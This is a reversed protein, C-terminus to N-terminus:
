AAKATSTVTALIEAEPSVKRLHLFGLVSLVLMVGALVFSSIAAILAIQGMKWFGYAELLLGRLTEGRFLTQVQAALKTDNPNAQSKTSVQAYTQGGAIESLHIRIFHDAYAEAQPGTTLQQGAYKDLYPGIEKPALAASGKKPFFIQQEALQNHVNSNAFHYGWLLLGGAVLLVVTLVLGGATFLTDFAKRRM